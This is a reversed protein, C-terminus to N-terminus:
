TTVDFAGFIIMGTEEGMGEYFKGHERKNRSIRAVSSSDYIPGGGRGVSPVNDASGLASYQFHALPTSNCANTPKELFIQM